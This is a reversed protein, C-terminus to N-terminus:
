ASAASAMRRSNTVAMTRVESDNFGAELLRDVMLAMGDEVPPNHPQGLDSSLLSRETGAARINSFLAEWSIRGAYPTGFCRELVCGRDGLERQQSPSLHQSPFDPHTIVIHDVGADQAAAVVPVIEDGGLHGTCLVLDYEAILDLVIRVEPLVRGDSDLMHIPPPSIGKAHLDNKLTLWGPPTGTGGEASAHAENISDFTPLWVFKGGARACIEVAVPNVGGVPWNLTVAGIVDVKSAARVLAAREATMTYHSKLVFGQLGLESFRAALSVDDIRRPLVDPLVHVHLDYAGLLLDRARSSPVPHQKAAPEVAM